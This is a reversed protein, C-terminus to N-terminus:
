KLLICTTTAHAYLKGHEDLLRAESTAIRAGVHIVKGEARLLGTEHSLARLYNIKFELTTCLVGSPLLTVIACAMASDLVTAAAGGHVVGMPNYHFEAPQFTFATRGEGVEVLAFGVLAFIPPPPMTGEMIARLYDIGSMERGRAAVLLPDHWAIVRQRRQDPESELTM